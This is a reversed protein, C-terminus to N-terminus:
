GHRHKVRVAGADAALDLLGSLVECIEEREETYIFGSRRDMRNFAETYEAVLEKLKGDIESQTRNASDATLDMIAARMKKYLEAAKKAISASINDRGDWDRFPNNLNNALWDAKRPQTIHLDLGKAVEKKYAAKIRKAAEEPLSSMWLRALQPLADPAPFEEGSFGFLDQTSFSALEQLRTLHSLGKLTGPKGTLSLEKLRPFADALSAVDLEKIGSLQLASLRDLGRNVPLTDASCIVTLREGQRSAHIALQPSPVGMLSLFELRENVFLEEVGNVDIILRTLGSDAFDISTQGHNTLFLEYIFPNGNVYSILGPVPAEANINTLCGLKDLESLDSLTELVDHGIRTASKSMSKGGLEITGNDKTAEKFRRRREAPIQEWQLQRRMSGGTHWGSYRNTEDNILPPRNGARIYNPPVNAEVWSHDYRNNWFFYNCALPKMGALEEEDPLKDGAWDLELVAALMSRKKTGEEKLSTVQCAAYKGMEEVYVCYIDGVNPKM